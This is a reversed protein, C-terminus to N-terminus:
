RFIGMNGMAVFTRSELSKRVREVRHHMRLRGFFKVRKYLISGRRKAIRIKDYEM